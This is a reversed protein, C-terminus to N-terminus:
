KLWVQECVSYGNATPPECNKVLTKVACGQILFMTILAIVLKM